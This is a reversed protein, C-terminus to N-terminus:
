KASDRVQIRLTRALSDRGESVLRRLVVPADKGAGNLWADSKDLTEQSVIFRPYLMQVKTSAEEYSTSNWLDLLADFYPDVYEKLLEVQRPQMFGRALYLRKSNSLEGTTLANWTEAKIAADPLTAIAETHSLEGTVSPDSALIADLEARTIAGRKALEIAFFWRLDRDVTLGALGGELMSKLFAIQDPTTAIGAFIRAYQLQVDSSAEAVIVLEQVATASSSQLATRRAPDSSVEVLGVLDQGLGGSVSILPESKLGQILLEAFDHSSFESDRWMDWIAIWASVRAVPDKLNVLNTKLTEISRADFRVKAYTLDEDNIALFDAVKENVLAPVETFEGTVDIESRKRVVLQGDVLDYLAVILRHPRLETSGAPVAPAEQQIQVKTYFGNSEEVIPRLTNIGATKLWTASWADLDRGSAVGLEHLLDSLKTNSWAFKAFYARLGKIFNERGIYACLQHLVSAGKAYSIGDFNANVSEIDPMDVAIPHTSVLQDQRFAWSKRDVIFSTWSDTFRTAEGMALYSIWEAFSENLWLDDWWSMTVYDGFWMHAMEHLIVNARRERARETVRSRFVLLEERFTVVGANEMAGANFDLVAVQDYKEFQYALGFTKEFYSFGQKTLEFIEEPDLSEALSKRCYIGLPVTKEGVYEDHVHSYPGAVLTALYTPIRPTTGFEWFKADGDARTSKVPSNSIAEWHNPTLASLTFTAKLDPQDFCAFMNRIHATEGQSYLYIENDVPDVSKQLGEGTKSYAVEAEIVLENEEALNELYITEGDYGGLQVPAGNLTASIIRRAVADIFTDYGPKNCGFKVTTKAFFTEGAETVDLFVEYSDIDLHSSRELAESRSINIGPM